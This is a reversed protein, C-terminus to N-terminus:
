VENFRPLPLDASETANTAVRQLWDAPSSPGGLFHVNVYLFSRPHPPDDFAHAPDEHDAIQRFIQEIEGNSLWRGRVSKPPLYGLQKGITLTWIDDTDKVLELHAPSPYTIRNGQELAARNIEFTELAGYITRAWEYADEDLHQGWALLTNAGDTWDPDLDPYLQGATQLAAAHAYGGDHSEAFACLWLIERQSQQWRVGRGDAFHYTFVDARDAQRFPETGSSKPDQEALFKAVGGGVTGLRPADDKWCRYTLWRHLV